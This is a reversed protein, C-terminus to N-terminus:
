YKIIDCTFCSMVLTLCSMVPSVHCWLLSVHCWLHAIVDCLSCSMMLTLLSRLLSALSDRIDDIVDSNVSTRVVSWMLPLLTLGWRFLCTHWVSMCNNQQCPARQAVSFAVYAATPLKFLLILISVILDFRFNLNAADYLLLSTPSGRHFIMM